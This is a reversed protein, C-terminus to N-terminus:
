TFSKGCTDCAFPRLKLHKRVHDIANCAKPFSLNCYSCTLLQNLRNTKLNIQNTRTIKSRIEDREDVSMYEDGPQM